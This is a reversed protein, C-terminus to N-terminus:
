QNRLCLSLKMRMLDMRMKCIKNTVANDDGDTASGNHESKTTEFTRGSM